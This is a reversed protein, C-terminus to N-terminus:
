PPPEREDDDRRENQLWCEAGKCEIFVVDPRGMCSVAYAVVGAALETRGVNSPVCQLRQLIAQLAQDSAHVPTASLAGMIGLVGLAEVVRLAKM